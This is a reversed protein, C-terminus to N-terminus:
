FREVEKKIKLEEYVEREMLELDDSRLRYAVLAFCGGFWGGVGLLAAWCKFRQTRPLMRPGHDLAYLQREMAGPSVEPHLHTSFKGGGGGLGRSAGASGSGYTKNGKVDIDPM